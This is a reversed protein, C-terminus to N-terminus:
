LNLMKALRAISDKEEQSPEIITDALVNEEKGFNIENTKEGPIAVDGNPYVNAKACTLTVKIQVEEGNEVMPVRIEKEYQFSGEFTDLIKKLVSEKAIAGKLAM